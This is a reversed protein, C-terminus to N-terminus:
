GANSIHSGCMVCTRASPSVVTGCSPCLFLRENLRKKRSESLMFVISIIFCFVLSVYAIVYETVTLHIVRGLRLTAYIMAVLVVAAVFSSLTQIDSQNWGVSNLYVVLGSMAASVFLTAVVIFIYIRRENTIVKMDEAQVSQKGVPLESNDNQLLEEDSKNALDQLLDAYRVIQESDLDVLADLLTSRVRYRPGGQEKPDEILDQVIVHDNKHFATEGDVIVDINVVCNDGISIGSSM